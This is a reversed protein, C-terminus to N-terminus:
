KSSALAICQWLLPLGCFDASICTSLWSSTSSWQMEGYSGLYKWTGLHCQAPMKSWAKASIAKRHEYPIIITTPISHFTYM